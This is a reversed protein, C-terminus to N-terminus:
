AEKDQCWEKVNSDFVAAVLQSRNRAVWTGLDSPLPLTGERRSGRIFDEYSLEALNQKPLTNMEPDVVRAFLMSWSSRSALTVLGSRPVNRAIIMIAETLRVMSKSPLLKGPSLCISEHLFLIGVWWALLRLKIWPYKIWRWFQFIDAGPPYLM